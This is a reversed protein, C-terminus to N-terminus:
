GKMKQKMDSQLFELVTGFAQGIMPPVKQRRSVEVAMMLGADPQWHWSGMM